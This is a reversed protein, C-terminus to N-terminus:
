AAAAIQPTNEATTAEHGTVEFEISRNRDSDQWWRLNSRPRLSIGLDCDLALAVRVLSHVTLNPRGEMVKTIYSRSVGLREALESRKVDQALMTRAIQETIDLLMQETVFDSNQQYRQLKEEVWTKV